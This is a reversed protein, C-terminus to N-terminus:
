GSPLSSVGAFFDPWHDDLPAEELQHYSEKVAYMLCDSLAIKPTTTVMFLKLTVRPFLKGQRAVFYQDIVNRGAADVLRLADLGRPGLWALPSDVRAVGFNRRDIQTPLTIDVGEQPTDAYCLRCGAVLELRVPHRYIDLALSEEGSPLPTEALNNVILFRRLGEIAIYDSVRQAAGGCEVTLIPCGLDTAEMLAGLRIDTIILRHTFLPALELFCDHEAACVAFAPGDGSTNHIDVVAEPRHERIKALLAQALRGQEGEFPPNFLRNMDRLPPLYRHSFLPQALASSVSVIAIFTTVQPRFNELLLQHVAKVGSPENGHLLTVVFRCRHHDTGDLRLLTPVALQRLFDEVSEPISSAPPNNLEQFAPEQSM